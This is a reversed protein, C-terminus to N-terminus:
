TRNRIRRSDTGSRSRGNYFNPESLEAGHAPLPIGYAIGDLSTSRSVVAISENASSAMWNLMPSVAVSKDRRGRRLHRSFCGAHYLTGFGVENGEEYEYDKPMNWFPDLWAVANALSLFPDDVLANALYAYCELLREYAM